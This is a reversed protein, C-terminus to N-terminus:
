PTGCDIVPLFYGITSRGSTDFHIEFEPHYCHANPQDTTFNYRMSKREDITAPNGLMKIVEEKTYGKLYGRLLQEFTNGTKNIIFTDQKLLVYNHKATDRSNLLKYAVYKQLPTHKPFDGACCGMLTATGILSFLVAKYM